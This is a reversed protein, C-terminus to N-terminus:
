EGSLEVRVEDKIEDKLEAKLEEKLENKVEEKVEAKIEEKTEAKIEAKIHERVLNFDFQPLSLQLSTEILVRWFESVIRVQDQQGNVRYHRIARECIVCWQAFLGTEVPLYVEDSEILQRLDDSGESVLDLLDKLESPVQASM